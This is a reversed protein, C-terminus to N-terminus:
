QIPLNDRGLPIISKGSSDLIKFFSPNARNYNLVSTQLQLSYDMSFYRGSSPRPNGFVVGGRINRFYYARIDPPTDNEPAMDVRSAGNLPIQATSHCSVCSSQPDDVPGNLRGQYGHEKPRYGVPIPKLPDTVYLSENPQIGNGHMLGIPAFNMRRDQSINGNYIFTGFVWGTPNNNRSDKVAVDIQLLRLEKLSGNINETILIPNILYPVQDDKAETFLFKIVMTGEDFKIPQSLNPTGSGWVKRLTYAGIRNYVSVAYNEVRSTQNPHLEGPRSRRERTLGHRPNREMFEVHSWKLPDSTLCNGQLNSGLGYELVDELYKKPNTKFNINTPYSIPPQQRPYELNRTFHCPQLVQADSNQQFRSGGFMATFIIFLVLFVIKVRVQM